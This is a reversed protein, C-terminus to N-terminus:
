WATWGGDVVLNQGTVYASLDSALYAVAGVLDEESAMRRLPTREVYRTVFAEPQRRFIGGPSIANVRVHPALATALWRTLQVIAGKSAAYAAPQGMSTGEYLRLDPGVMGYISAMHIISGHGSARLAPLCAQALLFASTLNVDLARRWTDVSQESFECTWGALESSGVLAASHVLVDLRGFRRLAQAAVEHAAEADSVDLTLAACDVAFEASCSRAVTEAGAADTDIVLVRAGLEALAAAAARGIHGAGGAIACARDTLRM